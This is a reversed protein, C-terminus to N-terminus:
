APQRDFCLKQLNPISNIKALSAHSLVVFHTDDVGMWGMWDTSGQWTVKQFIFSCAGAEGAWLWTDKSIADTSPRVDTFGLGTLESLGAALPPNALTAEDPIVEAPEVIPRPVTPASTPTSTSPSAQVPSPPNASCSAITVTAVGATLFKGTLGARAMLNGM